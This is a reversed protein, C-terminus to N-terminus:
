IKLMPNLTLLVHPIKNFDELSTLPARDLCPTIVKEKNNPITCCLFPFLGKYKGHPCALM